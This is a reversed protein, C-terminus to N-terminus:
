GADGVRPFRLDFLVDQGLLHRKCAPRLAEDLRNAPRLPLAPRGGGLILPAVALQLRDVLGAALFRGVTVGGGEVLVRAIGRERLMGLVAGPSIRGDRADLHVAVAQDSLRREHPRGETARVVLTPSAGDTILGSDAPLRGNPDLVVRVAHPGKVNRTTLRPGDALATGVGIVVADSLARVRHLHVLGEEGNIYRSHGSCTAIYGDLSQGLLAIVQGVARSCAAYGAFLEVLELAQPTLAGREAEFAGTRADLTLDALEVPAQRWASGLRRFGWPVAPSMPMTDVLERIWLLLDWIEDVGL